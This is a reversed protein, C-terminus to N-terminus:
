YAQEFFNYLISGLVALVACLGTVVLWFIIGMRRNATHVTELAEVRSESIRREEQVRKETMVAEVMRRQDYEPILINCRTCVKQGLLIAQGCQPCPRSIQKGCEGCMTAQVPNLEGCHPCPQQSVLPPVEPLAMAALQGAVTLAQVPIAPRLSHDYAARRETDTLTACAEELLRLQEGAQDGTEQDSALLQARERHYAARIEDVTATLPLNFLEYYNM